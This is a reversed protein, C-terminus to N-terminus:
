LIRLVIDFIIMSSNVRGCVNNEKIKRGRMGPVTEITIMKGNLYM